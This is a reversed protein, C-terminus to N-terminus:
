IKTCIDNDFTCISDPKAMYLKGSIPCMCLQMIQPYQSGRTSPFISPLDVLKLSTANLVIQGSGLGRKAKLHMKGFSFLNTEGSSSYIQISSPGLIKLNRSMSEIKLKSKSESPWIFPTQLSCNLGIATAKSLCITNTTIIQNSHDILFNLKGNSDRIVLQSANVIFGSKILNSFSSREDSPFTVHNMENEVPNFTSKIRAAASASNITPGQHIKKGGNVISLSALGSTLEIGAPSSINLPVQGNIDKEVDLTPSLIEVAKLSGSIFAVSEGKSNSTLTLGNSDIKM